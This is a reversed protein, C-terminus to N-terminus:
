LNNRKKKRRYTNSLVLLFTNKKVAASADATATHAVNRQHSVGQLRLRLEPRLADHTVATTTIRLESRTVSSYAM